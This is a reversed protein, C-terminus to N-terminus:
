LKSPDLNDPNEGGLAKRLVENMRLTALPNTAEGFEDLARKYRM